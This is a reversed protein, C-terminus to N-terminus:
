DRSEMFDLGHPKECLFRMDKHIVYQSKGNIHTTKSNKIYHAIIHQKKDNHAM